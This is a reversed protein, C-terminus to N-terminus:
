SHHFAHLLTSANLLERVLLLGDQTYSRQKSFFWLTSLITISSHQYCLNMLAHFTLKMLYIHQSFEHVEKEKEQEPFDDAIRETESLFTKWLFNKWRPNRWNAIFSAFLNPWSETTEQIVLSVSNYYQIINNLYNFQKILSKVICELEIKNLYKGNSEM